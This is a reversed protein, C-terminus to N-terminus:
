KRTTLPNKFEYGRNDISLEKPNSKDLLIQLRSKDEDSLKTIALRKRTKKEM